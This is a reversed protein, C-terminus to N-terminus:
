TVLRECAYFGRQSSGFRHFRHYRWFRSNDRRSSRGGISLERDLDCPPGPGLWAGAGWWILRPKSWAVGLAVTRDDVCGGEGEMARHDTV